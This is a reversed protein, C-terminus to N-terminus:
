IEISRSVGKTDEKDLKVIMTFKAKLDKVFFKDLVSEPLIDGYEELTNPFNNIGFIMDSLIVEKQGDLEVELSVYFDKDGVLDRLLSVRFFEIRDIDLVRVFQEFLDIRNSVYVDYEEDYVYSCYENDMKENTYLIIINHISEIYEEFSEQESVQLICNRDLKGNFAIGCQVLAIGKYNREIKM